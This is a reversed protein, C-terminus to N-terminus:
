GAMVTAIPRWRFISRLPGSNEYAILGRACINRRSWGLTTSTRDICAKMRYLLVYVHMQVPRRTMKMM